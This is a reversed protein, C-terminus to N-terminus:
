MFGPIGGFLEAARILERRKEPTPANKMAEIMMQKTADKVGIETRDPILGLKKPVDALTRNISLIVRTEDRAQARLKGALSVLVEHQIILEGRSNLPQDPAQLQEDVEAILEQVRVIRDSVEKLRRHAPQSIVSHSDRLKQLTENVISEPGVEELTARKKLAKVDNWVTDETTHKFPEEKRLEEAIDAPSLGGLRLELVRGRRQSVARRSTRNRKKRAM